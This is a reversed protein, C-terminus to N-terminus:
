KQRRLNIWFFIVYGLEELQAKADELKLTHFNNEKHKSSARPASGTRRPANPLKKFIKQLDEPLTNMLEEVDLGAEKGKDLVNQIAKVNDAISSLLINKVISSM